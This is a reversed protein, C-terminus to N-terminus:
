TKIRMRPFNVQAFFVGDEPEHCQVPPIFWAQKTSTVPRPVAPPQPATAKSPPPTKIVAAPGGASSRPREPLLSLPQQKGAVPCNWRPIRGFDFFLDGDVHKQHYSVEGKM